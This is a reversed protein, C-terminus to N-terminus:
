PTYDPADEAYCQHDERACWTGERDPGYNCVGFECTSGPDGGCGLAALVLVALFRM